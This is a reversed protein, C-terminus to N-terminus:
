AQTPPTLAKEISEFIQDTEKRVYIFDDLTVEGSQGDPLEYRLKAIGKRDWLTRDMQRVASLPVPPHGPVSLTQGDYEYKGRSHIAVWGLWLLGVPPLVCGLIRNLPVDFASHRPTRKNALDDANDRPYTVFGDKVSFLGFVIFFVAFGGRKLRYELSPKAIVPWAPAAYDVTPATEPTSETPSPDPQETM